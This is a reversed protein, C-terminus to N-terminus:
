PKRGEVVVGVTGTEVGMDRLARADTLATLETASSRHWWVTGGTHLVRAVEELTARVSAGNWTRDLRVPLKRVHVRHVSGSRIPLASSWVALLTGGREGIRDRLREEAYAAGGVYNVVVFAAVEGEGGISLVLDM